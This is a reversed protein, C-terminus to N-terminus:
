HKSKAAAAYRKLAEARQTAHDVIPAPYDRGLAFGCAQAELPPM